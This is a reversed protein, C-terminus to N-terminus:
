IRSGPNITLSQSTQLRAPQLLQKPPLPHLAPFMLANRGMWLQDLSQDQSQNDSGAPSGQESGPGESVVSSVEGRSVETNGVRYLPIPDQTPKASM